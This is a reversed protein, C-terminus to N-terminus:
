NEYPDPCCDPPRGGRGSEQGQNQPGREPVPSHRPAGGATDGQPSEKPGWVRRKRLDVHLRAGSWVPAVPTRPNGTFRPSERVGRHGSFTSSDHPLPPSGLPGRPGSSARVRGYGWGEETERVPFVAAGHPQRKFLACGTRPGWGPQRAGQAPHGVAQEGEGAPCCSGLDLAPAGM